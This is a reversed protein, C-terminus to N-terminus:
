NGGASPANIKGTLKKWIPLLFNSDRTRRIWAGFIEIKKDMWRPPILQSPSSTWVPAFFRRVTMTFAYGKHTHTNTQIVARQPVFSRTDVIFDIIGNLRGVKLLRTLLHMLLFAFRSVFCSFGSSCTLTLGNKITHTTPEFAPLSHQINIPEITNYSCGAMFLNNKRSAAFISKTRKKQKTEATEM